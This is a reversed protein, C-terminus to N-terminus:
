KVSRPQSAEALMAELVPLKRRGNFRRRIFGQADIIVTTPLDGANFRGGVLFHEDMLVTCNVGSDKVARAVKERVQEFSLRKPEHEDEEHHGEAEEGGLHGHPDPVNDLSVGIIALRGGGKQECGTLDQLESLCGPCWTTWFHLLVVKGHFDSLHVMHGDLGPAEFDAVAAPELRVGQAAPNAEPLAPGFEARHEAWWVRARDAGAKTKSQGGERLDRLGSQEGDSAPAIETLKVGFTQHTWKELLNLVMAVVMPSSDDLLPAITPVGVEPSFWRVYDLGLLRVEPDCDKLQAAALSVLATDKCRRLIRFAEERVNLDPDFAASRLLSKLEASLPRSFAVLQQVEYIAARRHVIKGTNWASLIAAPRDPAAEIMEEVMSVTPSNNALIGWELVANRMRDRFLWAGLAAMLGFALLVRRVAIRRQVRLLPNRGVPEQPIDRPKMHDIDPLSNGLQLDNAVHNHLHHQGTKVKLPEFAASCAESWSRPTRQRPGPRAASAKPVTKVRQSVYPGFVSKHALLFGLM